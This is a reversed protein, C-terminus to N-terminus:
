ISPPNSAQQLSYLSRDSQGKQFSQSISEVRSSLRFVRRTLQQILKGLM